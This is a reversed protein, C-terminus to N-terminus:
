FSAKRGKHYNLPLDSFILPAKFFIDKKERRKNKVM